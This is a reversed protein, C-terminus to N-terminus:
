RRTADAGRQPRSALGEAGSRVAAREVRARGAGDERRVWDYRMGAVVFRRQKPLWVMDARKVCTNQAHASIVDLGERDLAILKLRDAVTAMTM